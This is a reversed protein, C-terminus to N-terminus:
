AKFKRVDLAAMADQQSMQMHLSCVSLLAPHPSGLAQATLTCKCRCNCSRFHINRGRLGVLSCADRESMKSLKFRGCSAWMPGEM